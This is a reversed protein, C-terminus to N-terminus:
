RECHGSTEEWENYISIIKTRPGRYQFKNWIYSRADADCEDIVLIVSFEDDHRLLENMLFSDRFRSANCYVVLPSLDAASTAELILRTKGVGPEGLMRIHVAATNNRLGEQITKITETQAPGLKLERRM